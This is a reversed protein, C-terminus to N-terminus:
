SPKDLVADLSSAVAARELWHELRDLDQEALIREREAESVAVGRVRLVTLLASARTEQRAVEFFDLMAVLVEEEEKTRSTVTGLAHKFRLLIQGAIAREHAGAPLKSLQEIAQPLLPGAAMLRVLLTSRDRPVQNAAILGVRLANGGFLYVGAPWGSAPDHELELEAMLSAPTGAAIIWLFPAPRAVPQRRAREERQRHQWHAIHKGLCARFEADDPAESYLEILCPHSAIQGLLGWGIGSPPM